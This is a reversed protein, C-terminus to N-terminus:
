RRRGGRRRSCTGSTGRCWRYYSGTLGASTLQTSHLCACGGPWEIGNGNAARENWVRRAKMEEPYVIEEEDEDRPREKLPTSFPSTPFVDQKYPSARPDGSLIVPVLHGSSITTTVSPADSTHPARDRTDLNSDSFDAPNDHLPTHPRSLSPPPPLSPGIIPEDVEDDEVVVDRTRRPGLEFTWQKVPSPHAAEVDTDHSEEEPRPSPPAVLPPPPPPPLPPPLGLSPSALPLHPSEPHLQAPLPSLSVVPTNPSTSPPDRDDVVASAGAASSVVSGKRSRRKRRKPPPTHVIADEGGSTTLEDTQAGVRHQLRGLMHRAAAARQEGGTVTNSRSVVIKPSPVAQPVDFNSAGGTLKLMTAARSASQSRFLGSGLALRQQLDQLTPVAGQPSPSSPAAPAAFPIRIGGPMGAPRSPTPSVVPIDDFAPLFGLKDEPSSDRPTPSQNLDKLDKSRSRSSSRSQRKRKPSPSRPPRGNPEQEHQKHDNRVSEEREDSTANKSSDDDQKSSDDKSKEGESAGENHMPPRRGGQIRPLSAARKLKAVAGARVEAVSPQM